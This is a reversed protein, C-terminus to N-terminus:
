MLGASELNIDVRCIPCSSNAKLWRDICQIHYDHICPLIRLKETPLYDSFCIYCQTKGAAHAPDFFKTPLRNIEAVSLKKQSVVSGQHDEFALLDEYDNGDNVYANRRRRFRQERREYGEREYRQDFFGQLDQLVSDIEAPRRDSPNLYEGCGPKRCYGFDVPALFAEYGGCGPIGCFNSTEAANSPRGTAVNERGYQLAEMDFQAQLHRAFVEDEELQALQVATNDDIIVMVQPDRSSPESIAVVEDDSGDLDIWHNTNELLTLPAPNVTSTAPSSNTCQHLSSISAEAQESKQEAPRTFTAWDSSEASTFTAGDNRRTPIVASPENSKSPILSTHDNSKSPILSIHDNSKPPLLTSRENIKSPLLTSRENSESQLFSTRANSKSPLLSTRANSKSPLLSTRANSKSPLLATRANSKSPLLSTRANGKRTPTSTASVTGNTEKTPSSWSQLCNTNAKLSGVTSPKAKKIAPSHSSNASALTRSNTYSGYIRKNLISSSGRSGSVAGLGQCSQLLLQSGGKSSGARESSKERRAAPKSAEGARHKSERPSLTIKTVSLLSDRTAEVLRERAYRDSRRIPSSPLMSLRKRASNMMVSGDMARPRTSGSNVTSTSSATGLRRLKSNKDFVPSPTEPIEFESRGSDPDFRYGTNLPDPSGPEM